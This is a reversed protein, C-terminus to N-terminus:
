HQNARDSFDNIRIEAPVDNPGNAITKFSLLMVVGWIVALVICIIIINKKMLKEKV